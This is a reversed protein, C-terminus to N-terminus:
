KMMIFQISYIIKSLVEYQAEFLYHFYLHITFYMYESWSIQIAILLEHLLVSNTFFFNKSNDWKM